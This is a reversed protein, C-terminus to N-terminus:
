LMGLLEKRMDRLYESLYDTIFGFSDTILEPRM